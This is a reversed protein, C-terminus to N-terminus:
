AIPANGGFTLTGFFTALETFTSPFTHNAFSRVQTDQNFVATRIPVSEMASNLAESSTTALFKAM